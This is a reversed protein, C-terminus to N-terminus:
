MLSEDNAGFGLFHSITFIQLNYNSATTGTLRLSQDSNAGHEEWGEM